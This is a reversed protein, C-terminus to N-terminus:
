SFKFSLTTSSTLVGVTVSLTSLATGSAPLAASSSPSASPSPSSSARALACARVNGRLRTVCWWWISVRQSSMAVSSPHRWFWTEIGQERQNRQVHGSKVCRITGESDPRAGQPPVHPRSDGVISHKGQLKRTSVHTM